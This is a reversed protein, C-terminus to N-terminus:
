QNVAVQQDFHSLDTLKVVPNPISLLLNIQSAFREPNSSTFFQTSTKDWSTNLMKHKYLEQSVKSAIHEAPDLFDVESPVIQQITESIWPYHTCGYILADMKKHNFIDLYERACRTLEPGSIRGSEIIPVFKPCSISYIEGQFGANKLINEHMRSQVSTPTAIIGVCRNQYHALLSEVMPYITGVIPINFEGSVIDIATASSTHCAAVVLKTGKVNQMWSITQRAYSIIQEPTKEGYPLNATDAFYVFHEHPLAHQLKRLVTLGGIGSDFIGIPKKAQM